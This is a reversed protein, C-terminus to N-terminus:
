WKAGNRDRNFGLFNQNFLISWISAYSPITIKEEIFDIKGQDKGQRYANLASFYQLYLNLYFSFLFDTKKVLILHNFLNM